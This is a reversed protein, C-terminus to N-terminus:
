ASSPPPSLSLLILDARRQVSFKTLLNSVHFKVTRESINLKAAIEKNSQNLLLADLVDMERRSLGSVKGPAPAGGSELLGDLFTSLVDRPVWLGGRAVARIASPLQEHAEAYTLIGKVGRRLLPVAAEITLAETVVIVRAGPHATVVESVLGDTTATPFCADLVLVSGPGAEFPTSSPALSYGLRVPVLTLGRPLGWRRLEALVFPHPSLLHAQVAEEKAQM